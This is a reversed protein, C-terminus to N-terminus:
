AKLALYERRSREVNMKIVWTNRLDSIDMKWKSALHHLERMNKKEGKSVKLAVRWAYWRESVESVEPSYEVEGTRFKRCKKEVHLLIDTIQEDLMNLKM